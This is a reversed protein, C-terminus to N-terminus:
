SDSQLQPKTCRCTCRAGGSSTVHSCWVSVRSHRFSPPTTCRSPSSRRKTRLCQRVLQVCSMATSGPNGSSLQLRSPRKLKTFAPSEFSFRFSTDRPLPPNLKNTSHARVGMFTGTEVGVIHYYFDLWIPSINTQM